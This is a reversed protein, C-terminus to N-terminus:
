LDSEQLPQVQVFTKNLRTVPSGQPRSQPVKKKKKRHYHYVCSM